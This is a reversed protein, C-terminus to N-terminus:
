SILIYRYLIVINHQHLSNIITNMSQLEDLGLVGNTHTEMFKIQLLNYGFVVELDIMPLVYENNCTLIIPM